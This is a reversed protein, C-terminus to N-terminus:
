RKSSARAIKFYKQKGWSNLISPNLQVYNHFKFWISFLFCKGTTKPPVTFHGQPKHVQRLHGLRKTRTKPLAGFLVYNVIDGALAHARLAQDPPSWRFWRTM